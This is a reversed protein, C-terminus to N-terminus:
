VTFSSRVSHADRNGGPLWWKADPHKDLYCAETAKLDPTSDEDDFITVNGMLSVRPRNAAPLDSMISFSVDGGGSAM